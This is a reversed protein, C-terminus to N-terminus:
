FHLHLDGKFSGPEITHIKSDSLDLRKVPHKFDFSNKTVKFIGGAPDGGKMSVVDLSTFSSIENPIKTM